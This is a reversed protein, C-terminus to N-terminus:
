TVKKRFSIWAAKPLFGLKLNLAAMPNNEENATEITQAGARQAFLITQVKLATAIGARRYARLVGTLGTDVRKYTPDNIWLNSMGVFANAQSPADQKEQVAIFWALPDLAPDDLIMQEFQALTPRTPPEVAPVDQILAWRLEYLKQKWHPDRAILEALTCIGIGQAALKRHLGQFRTEDFDAVNLSARPSRM